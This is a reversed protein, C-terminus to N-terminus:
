PRCWETAFYYACSEFVIGTDATEEEDDEDEDDEDDVEVPCRDRAWCVTTKDSVTDGKTEVDNDCAVTSSFTNVYIALLM